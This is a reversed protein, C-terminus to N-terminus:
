LGEVELAIEILRRAAEARAPLDDQQRRWLDIKARLTKGLRLTSPWNMPEPYPNETKKQATTM